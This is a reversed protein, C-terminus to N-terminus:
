RNMLTFQCSVTAKLYTHSGYIDDYDISVSDCVGYFSQGSINVSVEPAQVYSGSHRPKTLKRITEIYDNFTSYGQPLYEQLAIFSINVTTPQSSAFAIIPTASGVPTEKIFSAQLSESMSETFLIPIDRYLEGNYYLEIHAETYSPPLYTFSSGVKSLSKKHADYNYSRPLKESDLTVTGMDTLFPDIPLSNIKGNYLIDLFTDSSNSPRKTFGLTTLYTDQGNM